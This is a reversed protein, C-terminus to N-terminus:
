ALGELVPQMQAQEIRQKAIEFYGEDIEIGIFNRGTQVCAVGTTGSGMFPDLITDGPNTLWKVLVRLVSIPKQTPHSTREAHKMCGKSMGFLVDTVERKGDNESIYGDQTFGSPDLRSIQDDQGRKYGLNRRVRQYPEGDRFVKNWTLNKIEHRPHAYVGYPEKQCMPKKANHSRPAGGEKLWVGDFRHVWRGDIESQIKGLGFSCLYGDPKVTKLLETIWGLATYDDFHIDTVGYPPDTVVADVSGAELTPLIDLCDGCFLQVTM